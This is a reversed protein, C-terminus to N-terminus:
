LKEKRRSMRVVQMTLTSGGSVVRGAKLNGYAARALSVPNVGPHFRFWRDEFEIIATAFKQPVTDCPPFRWQGDSAIRAGLLTGERDTVVLSYGTGRFLDRPLCFLFLILLIALVTRLRKNRRGSRRKEQPHSPMSMPMM